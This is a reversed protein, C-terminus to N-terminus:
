YIDALSKLIYDPRFTYKLLEQKDVLNGTLVIASKFGCCVALQIDTEMTDGVFLIQDARCKFHNLIADGVNPHPKGSSEISTPLINIEKLLELPMTMPSNKDPDCTDICTVIVKAGDKIWKSAFAVHEQTVNNLTGIVLYKNFSDESNQPHSENIIRKLGLEGVVGVSVKQKERKATLYNCVFKGATFIPLRAANPMGIEFLLKSIEEHDWRCENTVILMNYGASSLWEITDDAGPIADLGKRLVGDLDLVVAKINHLM